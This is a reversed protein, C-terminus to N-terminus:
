RVITRRRPAVKIPRSRTEKRGAALEVIYEHVSEMAYLVEGEDIEAAAVEAEHLFAQRLEALAAQAALADVMWAHPTKGEAKALPTIKARLEDPLKLTTSTTM